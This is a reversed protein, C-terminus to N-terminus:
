RMGPGDFDIRGYWGRAGNGAGATFFL